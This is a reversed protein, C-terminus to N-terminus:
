EKGNIKSKRIRQDGIGDAIEVSGEKIRRRWYVNDPKEEGDASLRTFTVPDRVVMNPMPKIFLTKM